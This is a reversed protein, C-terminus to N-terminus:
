THAHAKMEGIEVDELLDYLIENLMDSLRYTLYLSQKFPYRLPSEESIWFLKSQSQNLRKELRLYKVWQEYTFEYDENEISIVDIEKLDDLLKRMETIKAFPSEEKMTDELSLLRAKNSRRKASYSNSKTSTESLTSMDNGSNRELDVPDSASAETASSVPLVSGDAKPPYNRPSLFQLIINKFSLTQAESPKEFYIYRRIRRDIIRSCRYLSDGVTSILVTMLPVAGICWLVYFARGCGTIPCLNGYGITILSLICFYFSEFYDWSEAIYFVLAGLFIFLLFLFLSLIIAHIHQRSKSRERINRISEFAKFDTFNPDPNETYKKYLRTRQTEVHYFFFIPGSSTSVIGSIMAIVLGLIIVGILSYILIMIESATTDPYIDGLGITLVSVVCFYLSNGYTLRLLRSFLASGWLFWVSFVFTFSMLLRENELLNFTAAYKKKLYGIFHISLLSVCIFYLCATIVAFWYGISRQYGQDYDRTTCMILAITLVVLAVIWATICILQAKVYGLRGSFNLLLVFNAIVGSLLSIINLTRVSSPDDVQHGTEPNIRWHDVAGAMSIMNSLPSLCASIVPFYCSVGFWIIFSKSSPDTNLVAIREQKFKVSEQLARSPLGFNSNSNSNINPASVSRRGSGNTRTRNM